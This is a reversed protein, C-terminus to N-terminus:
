EPFAGPHWEARRLLAGRVAPNAPKTEQAEVGLNYNEIYAAEDRLAAVARALAELESTLSVLIPEEPRPDTAAASPPSRDEGTSGTLRVSTRRLRTTIDWLSESLGQVDSIMGTFGRIPGM